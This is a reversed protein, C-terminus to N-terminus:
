AGSLVMWVPLNLAFFPGSVRPVDDPLYPRPETQFTSDGMYENGNPSVHVSTLPNRNVGPDNFPQCQVVTFM